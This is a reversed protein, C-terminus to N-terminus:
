NMTQGVISKQQIIMARLERYKAQTQLLRQTDGNLAAQTEELQLEYTRNFMMFHEYTVANGKLSSVQVKLEEVSEQMVRINGYTVVSFLAFTFVTGYLLKRITDELKMNKEHAESITQLLDQESMNKRNEVFISIKRNKFM